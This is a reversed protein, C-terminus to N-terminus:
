IIAEPQSATTDKKPRPGSPAKGDVLYCINEAINTAHDGIREMNKSAFLLHTCTGIMRPNELMYTLLERFVANYLEDLEEDCTWVALAAASDSHRFADLVSRVADRALAGIPIVVGALRTNRDAMAVSRKATNKALDGIRELDAAIKVSAMIARLDGAVPQRKAIMRIAKEEIERFLSDVTLDKQIAQEALDSEPQQLADGAADVQELVVAGMSNILSRLEELEEDYARVTHESMVVWHLRLRCFQWRSSICWAPNRADGDCRLLAASDERQLVDQQCVHRRPGDDLQM